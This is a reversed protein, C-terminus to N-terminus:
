RAETVAQAIVDRDVFGPFQSVIAGSRKVV